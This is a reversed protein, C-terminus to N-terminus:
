CQIAFQLLLEGLRREHAPDRQVVGKSFLADSGPTDWDAQDAMAIRNLVFCCIPAETAAWIQLHVRTRPHHPDSFVRGRLM